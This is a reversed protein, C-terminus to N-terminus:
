SLRWNTSEIPDYTSPDVTTKLDLVSWIYDLSTAQGMDVLMEDLMTDINKWRVPNAYEKLIAQTDWNPQTAQFDEQLEQLEEFAKNFSNMEAEFQRQVENMNDQLIQQYSSGLVNIAQSGISLLSTKGLQVLMQNGIEKLTSKITELTFEKSAEKVVEQAVLNGVQKGTEASVESALPMVSNVDTYGALVSAVVIVIIMIILAIIGKLGLKALLPLIVRRMLYGVVISTAVAFLVQVLVNLWLSQGATFPSLAVSVIFTVIQVVPAVYKLGRRKKKQEVFLWSYNLPARYAFRELSVASMRRIVNYDLPVIGFYYLQNIWFYKRGGTELEWYVQIDSKKKNDIYKQKLREFEMGLDKWAACWFNREIARTHFQLGCIAYGTLKGSGSSKVFYIYGFNDFCLNVNPEASETIGTGSFNAGGIPYEKGNASKYWNDSALRNIPEIQKKLQEISGISLPHGRLIDKNRKKRKIKRVRGELTVKKIFLYSYGGYHLKDTTSFKVVTQPIGKLSAASKVTQLWNQYSSEKGQLNYERKAWEYWYEMNDMSQNAFIAAPMISTHVTNTNGYGGAWHSQAMLSACHQNYDIGLYDSLLEIHRKLRSPKYDKMDWLKDSNHKTRRSRQLERSIYRALTRETKNYFKGDLEIKEDTKKKRRTAKNQTRQGKYSDAEVLEENESKITAKTNTIENNILGIEFRRQFANLSPDSEAQAKRNELEKIREDDESMEYVDKTLNNLEKMAKVLGDEIKPITQIIAMNGKEYDRIPIPAYFRYDNSDESTVPESGLQKRPEIIFYDLLDENNNEKTKIDMWFFHEQDYKYISQIEKLSYRHFTKESGDVIKKVSGLYTIKITIVAEKNNFTTVDDDDLEEGDEDSINTSRLYPNEFVKTFERTISNGINMGALVNPITEVEGEGLDFEYTETPENSGSWYTVGISNLQTTDNPEEVTDSTFIDYGYTQQLYEMYRETGVSQDLTENVKIWRRNTDLTSEFGENDFVVSFDSLKVTQYIKWTMNRNKYRHNYYQYYKKLKSGTGVKLQEQVFQAIDTKQAVAIGSYTSIPDPLYQSNIQSVNQIQHYYYKTTRGGRGIRKLKNKFYKAPNKVLQKIEQFVIVGAVIMGIPGGFTFLMSAAWIESTPDLYRLFRVVDETNRWINTGSVGQTLYGSNRWTDKPNDSLYDSPSDFFIKFYPSTKEGLEVDDLTKVEKTM